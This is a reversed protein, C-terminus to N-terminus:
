MLGYRRGLAEVEDKADKLGLGTIERYRKIAQIKRGQRLEELVMPDAEPEPEVIGLHDMILDLKREIAVLRRTTQPDEGRRGTLLSVGTIVIVTFALAVLWDM